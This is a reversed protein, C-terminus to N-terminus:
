GMDDKQKAQAAELFALIARMAAIEADAKDPKMRGAKIWNPYVRERMGIERRACAIMTELSALTPSNM